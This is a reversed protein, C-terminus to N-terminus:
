YNECNPQTQGSKPPGESNRSAPTQVELGRGVTHRQHLGNNECKNTKLHIYIYIYIIEKAGNDGNPRIKM